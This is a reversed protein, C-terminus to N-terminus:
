QAEEGGRTGTATLVIHAGAVADQPRDVARMQIGYKESMERAFAERREARPSYVRGHRIHPRVTMLAEMETHAEAGSGIVALDYDPM